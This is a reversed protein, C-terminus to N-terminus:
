INSYQLLNETITKDNVIQESKKQNLQFVSKCISILVYLKRFVVILLQEVQEFLVILLQILQLLLWLKFFYFVHLQLIHRYCITFCVLTFITGSQMFLSNALLYAEQLAQNELEFLYAELLILRCRILFIWNLATIRLFNAVGSSSLIIAMLFTDIAATSEM